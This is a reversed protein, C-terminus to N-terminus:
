AGTVESDAGSLFRTLVRALHDVLAIAQVYEMRTPGVIGVTGRALNGSRYSSAIVACNELGASENENGITVRVGSGGLVNELLRVLRSKEDLTRFLTKMKEGDSFEPSDLLNSAGEVFVGAHVDAGGLSKRGLEMSKVKLRDLGAQDEKLRRVMERHMDELTMGSFQESLWSGMADLDVQDWNARIEALRNHVVGSRGVLIAVCRRSAVKVFEIREVVLRSMEPALVVGVNKSFRSLQRSAELLLGPIEGRCHTMAADIEEARSRALRPEKMMREVYFRYAGETPVRGASTHPQSLFGRNELDSMTGRITAPSLDMRLERSVTKSGVPEGTLIHAKLVSQLISRERDDLESVAPRLKEKAM